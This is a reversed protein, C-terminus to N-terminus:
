KLKINTVTAKATNSHHIPSNDPHINLNGNPYYKRSFPDVYNRMIGSYTNANLNYTFAKFVTLKIFFNVKKKYNLCNENYLKTLNEKLLYM